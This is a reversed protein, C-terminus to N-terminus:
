HADVDDIQMESVNDNVDLSVNEGSQNESNPIINPANKDPLKLKTFFVVITAVLGTLGGVVWSAPVAWYIGDLGMFHEFLYSFGVRATISMITVLFFTKLMGIGKFLSQSQLILITFLYAMSLARIADAGVRVVGEGEEGVFMGALADAGFYGVVWTILAYITLFIWSLKYGQRIRDIQGKGLNQATFTTFANTYGRIPTQLISDVKYSTNIGAIVTPSYSNVLGQIMVRGVYVYVQQIAFTMGYSLVPRIYRKSITIDKIGLKLMDIKFYTYIMCAVVSLFQAIITAFAAGKVGWKFVVVFLMDLVANIFVSLLLFILPLTSKGISRLSYCYFNYLYCFIGGAFIIYLYDTTDKILETPTNLLVLVPKTLAICLACLVLTIISGLVLATSMIKKINAFDEAGYHQSIVVGAGMSLGMLLFIIISMIPNAVGLSALANEGVVNGVIMSDIANYLQQCFDGVIFPISFILLNWFPNGQLLIQSKDKAKTM